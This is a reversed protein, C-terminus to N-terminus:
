LSQGFQNVFVEGRGGKLGDGHFMKFTSTLMDDKFDFEHDRLWKAMMSLVPVPFIGGSAFTPLLHRDYGGALVISGRTMEAGVNPGCEGFVVITGALMNWGVLEGADGGIVITGRRMSHGAGKGVNGRVLISGRNMGIKTGPLHGGVMDGANGAVHIMGGTMEVGLFDSVNSKCIIEGGSMQSGLRNGAGSEVRITGSTMRAGISHVPKLNGEFVITNTDSSSGSVQFLEALHLQQRGHWVLLKEIEGTSKGLLRDPTIGEAEIPITTEVQQNLVLAM